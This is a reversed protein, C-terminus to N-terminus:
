RNMEDPWEWIKLWSIVKKFLGIKQHVWVEYGTKPDIYDLTPSCWCDKSEIHKM